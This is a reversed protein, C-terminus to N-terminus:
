PEAGSAKTREHSRILRRVAHFREGQPIWQARRLARSRRLRGAPRACPHRSDPHVACCPNGSSGVSGNCTTAGNTSRYAFRVRAQAQRLSLVFPQQSRRPVSERTEHRTEKVTVQAPPPAARSQAGGCTGATVCTFRSAPSSTVCATRSRLSRRCADRGIGASGGCRYALGSRDHAVTRLCPFAIPAADERHAQSGPSRGTALGPTAAPLPRSGCAGRRQRLRGAKRM